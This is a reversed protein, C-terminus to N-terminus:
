KTKIEKISTYPGYYKKGDIKKYARVKIYYKKNDSLKNLTKSLDTTTVKNYGTSRKTSYAIQYGSAGISQKYSVKIANNKATLKLSTPAKPAIYFEKTITGRYNGIGVIDIVAKGPNTNDGYLVIYDIGRKLIRDDDKIRVNPKISKGTYIKTSLKNVKLKSILTNTIIIKQSGTITNYNPNTIQYYVITAGVNTRGPKTSSWSTRTNTGYQITSGPKVNSIAITHSKGDYNGIYPKIVPKYTAKTITIKQSGTITKNDPNTVKYYVTTTGANTRSPKTTAWKAKTNTRYLIKSGSKVGSITITHAKGDYVGIYEKVTLYATENETRKVTTNKNTADVNVYTVQLCCIFLVLVIKIVKKLM